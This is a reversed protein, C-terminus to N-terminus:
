DAEARVHVDSRTVTVLCGNYRFSISSDEIASESRGDILENVHEPDITDYLPDLDLIETDTLTAVARVVVESPRDDEGIECVITERRTTPDTEAEGDTNKDTM